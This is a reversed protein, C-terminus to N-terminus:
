YVKKAMLSDYWDSDEFEEDADYDTADASKIINKFILIWESVRHIPLDDAYKIQINDEMATLIDLSFRHMGDSDTMLNGALVRVTAEQLGFKAVWEPWCETIDDVTYCRSLYELECKSKKILDFTDEMKTAHEKRYCDIDHIM